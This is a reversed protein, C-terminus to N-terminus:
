DIGNAEYYEGCGCNNISTEIEALDSLAEEYKRKANSLRREASKINEEKPGLYVTMSRSYPDKLDSLEKNLRNIEDLYWRRTRTSSNAEKVLEECKSSCSQIFLLLLLAPILVKM